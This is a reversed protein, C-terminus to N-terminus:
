ALTALEVDKLGNDFYIEVTEFGHRIIDPLVSLLEEGRVCTGIKM